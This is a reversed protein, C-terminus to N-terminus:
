LVTAQLRSNHKRFSEELMSRPIPKGHGPYFTDVPLSLLLEWSKLLQATDDAFPPFNRGRLIHFCTDGVMAARGTIVSMSGRTHGPTPVLMIGLNGLNLCTIQDVRHDALTGSYESMAPFFRNALSIMTSAFRMTGKPLPTRGEELYGAENKHVWVAAGTKEAMRKLGEVHDYHTHTLVIHKIQELAIGKEPIKRELFQVKHTKGPDILLGESGSVILYSNCSGQLFPFFSYSATRM